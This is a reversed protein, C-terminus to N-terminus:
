GAPQVPGISRVGGMYPVLAEPLRVSGDPQQFNELIAAVTRGVAVGSGNLTHVLEAKAGEAPRYRLDARRAQYDEFNSCSSIERYRGASPLWVEVDYTKAAILGLDGACLAVVRYPLGLRRLPEEADAVLRELEDYSTAPEVLKVLEVKNFQHVRILGRTDRGAAGSERRFCATYGCYYLPLTGPPLIEGAHLNTLPVEATPILYLPDDALRYMDEAFLPLQGTGRMIEPAALFPPFVETYGREAAVDLFFNILARELRAGLGTMVYFRSGALKAGREFDIVGLAPGLEWHAKPEFDFAPPEGVRRVEVNAEEGAGDPVSPHPLNPLRWLLAELEAEVSRLAAEDGAIAADVDRMAAILEAADEGAKRRAGIERSVRNKEARRQEVSTILRRREEDLALVRDLDFAAGRRRLGEQVVDRQARIFKLDIM